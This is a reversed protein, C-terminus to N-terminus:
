FTFVKIVLWITRSKNINGVVFYVEKGDKIYLANKIDTATLAKGTDDYKGMLQYVGWENIMFRAQEGKSLIERPLELRPIIPFSEMTRIGKEHQTFEERQETVIEFRKPKIVGLSLRKTNLEAVSASLNNQLIPLIQEKPLPDSVSLISDESRTKLAWSEFRNDENKREVEVSIKCLTKIKSKISTPYIRIFQRLEESYGAVCVCHGYKKSKVPTTRGLVILDDIRMTLIVGLIVM